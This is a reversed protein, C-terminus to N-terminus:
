QIFSLRAFNMKGDNSKDPYTEQLQLTEYWEYPMISVLYFLM